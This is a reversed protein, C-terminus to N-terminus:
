APVRTQPAAAVPPLRFEDLEPKIRVGVVESPLVGFSRKFMRTFYSHDNFGVAYCVDTVSVRPNELLRCAEQMRYRMLYERFGIAYTEKFTRSFHFTSMACLNAVKESHIKERFHKEVYNIAPMLRTVTEPPPAPTDQPLQEHPTSIARTGQAGKLDRLRLLGNVCRQLEPRAVPKVLYDWLRTRFAWVALSESHQLTVMIMPIQPLAHKTEQVQQLGTRDPYDFEFCIADPVERPLADRLPEVDRHIRIDCLERFTSPPEAERVSRTLDAWLLAIKSV